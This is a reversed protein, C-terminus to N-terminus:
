DVYFGTPAGEAPGLKNVYAAWSDHEMLQNVKVDIVSKDFHFFILFDWLPM